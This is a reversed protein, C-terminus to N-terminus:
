NTLSVHGEYFIVDPNNGIDFAHLRNMQERMSSTASDIATKGETNFLKDLEVDLNSTGAKSEKYSIFVELNKGKNTVAELQKAKKRPQEKSVELTKTAIIKDFM